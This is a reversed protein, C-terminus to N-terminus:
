TLQLIYSLQMTGDLIHNNNLFFIIPFYPSKMVEGSILWTNPSSIALQNTKLEELKKLSLNLKKSNPAPLATNIWSINLVILDKFM